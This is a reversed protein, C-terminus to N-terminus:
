LMNVPDVDVSLRLDKRMKKRIEKTMSRLTLKIERFKKNGMGSLLIMVRWRYRKRLKEIVAPAPGFLKTGNSLRKLTSHIIKASSEALERSESSTEFVILKGIPPYSQLKREKMIKRYFKEQEEEGM